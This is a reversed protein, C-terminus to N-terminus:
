QAQPSDKYVEIQEALIGDANNVNVTHVEQIDLAKMLGLILVMKLLDNKPEKSKIGLGESIEPETKGLAWNLVGQVDEVSYAHSEPTKKWADVYAQIVFNHLGGVAYVDYHEAVKNRIFSLDDAEFIAEGDTFDSGTMLLNFFVFAANLEEQTFVDSSVIGEKKFYDELGILFFDAGVNGVAIFFGGRPEGVVFQATRGGLDWVIAHEPDAGPAQLVAGRFALIGETTQEIVDIYVGSMGYTKAVLMDKYKPAARFGGTAVALHLIDGNEVPLEEEVIYRIATITAVRESLNNKDVGYVTSIRMDSIIHYDGTGIQIDAIKLKIASSGVDYIALRQFDTGKFPSEIVSHTGVPFKIRQDRNWYFGRDYKDVQENLYAGDILYDMDDSLPIVSVKDKAYGSLAVFMCTALLGTAMALSCASSLLYKWRQMLTTNM